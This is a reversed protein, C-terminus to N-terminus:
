PRCALGATDNFSLDEGATTSLTVKVITQLTTDVQDLPADGTADSVVGYEYSRERRVSCRVHYLGSCAFSYALLISFAFSMVLCVPAAPRTQLATHTSM